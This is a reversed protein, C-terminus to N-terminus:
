EDKLNTLAAFPNNFPKKEPRPKAAHGDGRQQHGGGGRHQSQGGGGRQSPGGGGSRQQSPEGGNAPQRPGRAHAQGGGSPRRGDSQPRKENRPQQEPRAVVKPREELKMSLSIQSRDLDVALVKVQVQDGPSVVKRPDEVFQHSLESIHVLGDQHVGIDVFAGFNTVNTVIGPCILGPKLDKLEHIDDRYQFVKFMDRPDRGPKELERVIDDFTFEGILKAWKERLTKLKEAGGGILSSITVGVEQGMERVAQYREPHIGTRDLIVKSEAVRFFGAAQEYVKTSFQPVKLLEEREKFLGNVKRYEVINRAIAPGIGSVYQLLSTSATNVEVGVSNVCSEVVDELSKKLKPQNVDHQYQGVGISKPEIKVLEALPDQLRRAISIAGRVTLDLDPFEERAVDSASYVSAGSESVMIVPVENKLEKLVGRIFSEAERGGTGNGIAIADIKIRQLTESLLTKAKDKADNGQIHLVTHSIFHAGKDILAVKCGTRIGPDLGLVVKPGFPSSMLVRRVNEAFVQIADTDAREKLQSHLENVISPIVHVALATKAVSKMFEKAQSDATICAAEFRSQLAEENAEMTVKLEGEQWGRRVALYRHSAKRSDLSKISEGFDAYMEFKSHAKFEPTKVSKLKGNDFFENRVLLRLNLDNSLKEVLIHQAGRLVEDYTAYLKAPAIYDKAKVELVTADQIEGRSLAWLWDALPAIGAERALTAKSKKKKKYPRYIEEIENLDWSENLSKQLTENLNGQKEIEKLVFDRRQNITNFEEFADLTGRIQVEDLNGTKEKRYRAMFPVTAGEAHLALVAEISRPNVGSVKKNIFANISLM